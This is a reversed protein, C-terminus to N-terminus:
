CSVAEFTALTFTSNEWFFTQLQTFNLSAISQNAFWKFFFNKNSTEFFFFFTCCSCAKTCMPQTLTMDTFATFAEMTCSLVFVFMHQQGSVTTRLTRNALKLLVIGFWLTCTNYFCPVTIFLSQLHFSKGSSIRFFFFSSHCFCTLSNNTSSTICCLLSRDWSKLFMNHNHHTKTEPLYLRLCVFVKVNKWWAMMKCFNFNSFFCFFLCSKFFLFIEVCVM